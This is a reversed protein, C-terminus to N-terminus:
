IQQERSHATHSAREAIHICPTDGLYVWYGLFKLPPRPGVTLGLAGCYHAMQTLPM